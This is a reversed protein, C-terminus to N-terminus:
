VRSNIIRGKFENQVVLADRDADEPPAINLTTVVPKVPGKLVSTYVPSAYRVRGEAFGMSLAYKNAYRKKVEHTSISIKRLLQDQSDCGSGIRVETIYGYKPAKGSYTFCIRDEKLKYHTSFEKILNYIVRLDIQPPVGHTDDDIAEINVSGMGRRVRKGFGGLYCTILFLAKLKELSLKNKKEDGSCMSLTVDFKSGPEIAPLQFHKHPVPKYEKPTIANSKVRITFSSRNQHKGTGGFIESENKKLEQLSLHGNMARWWFRMAGKISPPRLEPTRSDAGALFMPTITECTFKIKEM